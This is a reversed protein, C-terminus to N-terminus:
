KDDILRFKLAPKGNILLDGKDNWEITKIVTKKNKFKGMLIEDGVKIPIKVFDKYTKLHKM